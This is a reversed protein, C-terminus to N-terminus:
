PPVITVTDLDVENKGGAPVNDVGIRVSSPDAGGPIAGTILPPGDVNATADIAAWVSGDRRITVDLLYFVSRLLVPGVPHSTLAADPPGSQSTVDLSKSSASYRFIVRTAPSRPPGLTVTLLDFSTEFAAPQENFQFHLRVTVRECGGLLAKEIYSPASSTGAIHLHDAVGGSEAVASFASASPIAAFGELDGVLDDTFDREFSTTCTPAPAVDAPPTAGDNTALGSDGDPLLRGGDDTPNTAPALSTDIPNGCALILANAVLSAIVFRRM